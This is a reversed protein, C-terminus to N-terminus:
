EPHNEADLILKVQIPDMSLTNAIYEDTRGYTHRMWLMAHLRAHLFHLWVHDHANRCAPDLRTYDKM